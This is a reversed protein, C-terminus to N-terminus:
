RYHVPQKKGVITRAILDLKKLLKPNSRKKQPEKSTSLVHYTRRVIKLGAVEALVETKTRAPDITIRFSNIM